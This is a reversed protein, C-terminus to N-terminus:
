EHGRAKAIAARLDALLEPFDGGLQDGIVELARESVDYLDPAAAILRANAGRVGEIFSPNVFCVSRVFGTGPDHLVAVEGSTYTQVAWPGPTHKTSM